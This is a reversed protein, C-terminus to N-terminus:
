TRENEDGNHSQKKPENKYQKQSIKNKRHTKTHRHHWKITKIQDHANKDIQGWKSGKKKFIHIKSYGKSHVHYLDRNEIMFLPGRWQWFISKGFFPGQCRWSSCVEHSLRLMDFSLQVHLSKESGVNVSTGTVKNHTCSLSSQFHSLCHHRYDM